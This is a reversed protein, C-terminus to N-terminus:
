QSKYWFMLHAHKLMSSSLMLSAKLTELLGVSCPHFWNISIMSIRSWIVVVYPQGVGFASNCFLMSKQLAYKGASTCSVSNLCMLSQWSTCSRPSSSYVGFCSRFLAMQSSNCHPNYVSSKLFKPCFALPPGLTSPVSSM